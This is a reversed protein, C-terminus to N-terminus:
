EVRVTMGATPHVAVSMSQGASAAGLAGSPTRAVFAFADAAVLTFRERLSPNLRRGLM